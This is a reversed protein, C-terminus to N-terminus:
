SDSPTTKAREPNRRTYYYPGPEDYPLAKDDRGSRSGALRYAATM